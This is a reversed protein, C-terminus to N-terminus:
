SQIKNRKRFVKEYLFKIEARFFLRFVMIGVVIYTVIVIWLWHLRLWPRNSIIDSKSILINLQQEIQEVSLFVKSVEHNHRNIAYWGRQTKVVISDTLVAFQVVKDKIKREANSLRYESASFDERNIENPDLNNIDIDRYYLALSNTEHRHIHGPWGWLVYNEDVRYFGGDKLPFLAIPLQSILLWLFIAFIAKLFVKIIKNM